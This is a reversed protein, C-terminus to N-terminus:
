FIYGGFRFEVGFGITAIPTFYTSYNKSTYTTKDFNYDFNIFGGVINSFRINEESLDGWRKQKPNKFQMMGIFFYSSLLFSPPLVQTTNNAGNYYFISSRYISLIIDLGLGLEMFLYKLRKKKSEDGGFVNVFTLRSNFRHFFVMELALNAIFSTIFGACIYLPFLIWSPGFVESGSLNISYGFSTGFGMKYKSNIKKLFTYDFKFTLFLMPSVMFSERLPEDSYRSGLYRSFAVTFPLAIGGSINHSIGNDKKKEEREIETSNLIFTSLYLFTFIFFLYKKM